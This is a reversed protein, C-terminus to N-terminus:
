KLRQTTKLLTKTIEYSVSSKLKPKQKSSVGTQASPRLQQGAATGEVDADVAKRDNQQFQLTVAERCYKELVAVNISSYYNLCCM